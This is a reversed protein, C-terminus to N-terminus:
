PCSAVHLIKWIDQIEISSNRKVIIGGTIIAERSSYFLLARRYWFFDFWFFSVIKFLLSPFLLSFAAIGASFTKM